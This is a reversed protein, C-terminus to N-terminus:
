RKTFIMTARKLTNVLHKGGDEWSLILEYLQTFEKESMTGKIQNIEPTVTVINSLSFSGGRNIPHLHDYQLTTKDLKAGTFYCTFDISKLWKTIADTTPVESQDKEPHVNRFRSLWRSRLARAQWREWDIDKLAQNKDNGKQIAKKACIKCVRPHINNKTAKPKKFKVWLKFEGCEVCVRGKETIGIDIQQEKKRKASYASFCEKCCAAKKNVSGKNSSKSFNDWSLFKHCKTCHRGASDFLM